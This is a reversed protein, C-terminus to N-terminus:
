FLHNQRCTRQQFCMPDPVSFFPSHSFFSKFNAFEKEFWRAFLLLAATSRLYCVQVFDVNHWAACIAKTVFFNWQSAKGSTRTDSRNMKINIAATKIDVVEINAFLV